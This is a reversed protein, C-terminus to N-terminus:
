SILSKTLRWLHLRDRHGAAVLLARVDQGPEHGALKLDAFGRRQHSEQFLSNPVNQGFPL